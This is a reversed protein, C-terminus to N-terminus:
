GGVVLRARGRGQATYTTGVPLRRAVTVTVEVVPAGTADTVIRVSGEHGTEALHTEAAAVAAWPDIRIPGGARYAAVDVPQAGARAASNAEGIAESLAGVSVASSWVGLVLFVLGPICLAVFLSLIGDESRRFTM